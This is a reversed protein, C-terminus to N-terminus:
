HILSWGKIIDLGLMSKATYLLWFFNWTVVIFLMFKWVVKFLVITMFTGRIIRKDLSNKSM